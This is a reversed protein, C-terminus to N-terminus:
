AVVLYLVLGIHAIFSDTRRLEKKTFYENADFDYDYSAVKVDLRSVDMFSIPKIGHVGNKLSNFFSQVSNGISSKVGLATVVVRRKKM